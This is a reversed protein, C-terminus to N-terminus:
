PLDALLCRLDGATRATLAATLREDLEALTLRGETFHQRLTAAARDREADSVRMPDVLSDATDLWRIVADLRFLEAYSALALRLNQGPGGQRGQTLRQMRQMLCRRHVQIVEHVDTGPVQRALLLRLILEDGTVPDPTTHLWGALAQQGAATIRSERHPEDAAAAGGTEVLGARELQDLVPSVHRASLPPLGGRGAQLEQGLRLRSRPGAALLALLAFNVDM